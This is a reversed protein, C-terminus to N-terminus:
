IGFFQPRAVKVCASTCSSRTLWPSGWTHLSSHSVCAM